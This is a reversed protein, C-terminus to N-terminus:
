SSKTHFNQLAEGITNTMFVPATYNGSLMVPADINENFRRICNRIGRMRERDVFPIGAVNSRYCRIALDHALNNFHNKDHGKVWRFEIHHHKILRFIKNKHKGINKMFSLTEDDLKELDTTNMADLYKALSYNDLHVVFKTDANCEQPFHKRLLDFFYLVGRLEAIKSSKTPITKMSVVSYGALRNHKDVMAVGVAADVMTEKDKGSVENTFSSDIYFHAVDSIDYRIAGYMVDNSVVNM